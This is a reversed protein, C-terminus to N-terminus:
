CLPRNVQMMMSLWHAVGDMDNSEIVKTAIAKLEPVANEMAYSEDAIEFMELDNIGDGFAIVYDSKTIQKLRQIASAKTANKSMFELWQEGSYIDRQYVCHYLEKYKDYFPKIKEPSEICTIYFINGEILEEQSHVIRKRVDNRLAVFEVIGKASKEPYYSFREKGDIISYVIPYIGESFLEQLLTYVDNDLYNADIVERTVNDVIFAGNYTIVPIKADLGETVKSSSYISRATAYSFVVGEETLSNIIHNTYDSTTQNSRLLTGDLDSIYLIKKKM